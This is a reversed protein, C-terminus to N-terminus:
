VYCLSYSGWFYGTTSGARICTGGLRVVNGAQVNFQYVNTLGSIARKTSRITQAAGNVTCYTSPTGQPNQSWGGAHVVALMKGARSCTYSGGMSKSNVDYDWDGWVENIVPSFGNFPLASDAGASNVFHLLGDSGVYIRIKGMASADAKSALATADAKKAVTTSLTSVTGSLSAM